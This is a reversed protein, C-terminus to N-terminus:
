TMAIIALVKSQPRPPLGIKGIQSVVFSSDPSQAELADVEAQALANEKWALLVETRIVRGV